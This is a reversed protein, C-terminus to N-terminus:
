TDARRDGMAHSTVVAAVSSASAATRSNREMVRISCVRRERNGDGDDDENDVDEDSM